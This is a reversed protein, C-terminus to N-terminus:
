RKGTGAHEEVGLLVYSPRGKVEAFVKSLYVGILLQGFSNIGGWFFVFFILTPWGVVFRYGHHYRYAEWGLYALCVLFALASVATLTVLLPKESFYLIGDSAFELMRRVSFKSRGRARLNQEFPIQVSPFGLWHFLGRVFRTKEPLRLYERCVPYSFGRFDAAGEPLPTRSLFRFLGYFAKRSLTKFPGLGNHDSRIMQVHHVGSELQGVIKPLLAPPHELDSDMTVFLSGEDARAFAFELGAMLAGQHGFNRTFRLVSVRAGPFTGAALRIAALTRDKSGDDVLVLQAEYGDALGGLVKGTEELFSGIVAAENYVPAVIFLKRKAPSSM